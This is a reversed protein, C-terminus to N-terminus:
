SHPHWIIYVTVATTLSTIMWSATQKPTSATEEAQLEQIDSEVNTIRNTNGQIDRDNDAIDSTLTTHTGQASSIHRTIRGDLDSIEYRIQRNLEHLESQDAKSTKLTQVTQRLTEFTSMRVTTDSLTEFRESLINFDHQDAKTALIENIHSTTDELTAVKSVLQLGQQQLQTTTNEIGNVTRSLLLFDNTRVTSNALDTVFSVVEEVDTQNAKSSELRDIGSQLHDYHISLESIMSTASSLKRETANLMEQLARITASYDNELEIMRARVDHLEERTSNLTGQMTTHSDELQTIRAMSDKKLQRVEDLVIKLQTGSSDTKHVPKSELENIRNEQKILVFVVCATSLMLIAVNLAIIIIALLKWSCFREKTAVPNKTSGQESKTFPRCASIAYLLFIICM